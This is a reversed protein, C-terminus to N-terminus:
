VVLYVSIIYENAIHLNQNNYNINVLVTHPLSNKTYMALM